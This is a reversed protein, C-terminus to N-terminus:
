KKNELDKVIEKVLYIAIILLAVEIAIRLIIEM